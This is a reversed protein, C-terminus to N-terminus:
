RGFHRTLGVLLMSNRVWTRAGEAVGLLPQEGNVPALIRFTNPYTVNYFYNTLDARVTWRGPAHWKVGAGFQLAFRNGFRFGSSDSADRFDGVFGLSGNLSPVLGRWSKQGTLNLTVGVDAFYLPQSESSAIRAAPPVGRTRLIDRDSLQVIVRSMLAAPGSVRLDHRVGIALGGNPAAGLRDRGGGLGALFTLDQRSELDRFPSREPLTGVQGAAPAALLTGAVAALGVRKHLANM